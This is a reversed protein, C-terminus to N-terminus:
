RPKEGVCSGDPAKIFSACLPAWARWGGDDICVMVRVNERPKWDWLALAEVQYRVGSAGTLDFHKPEDILTCLQEYSLERHKALEVGLIERAETTNM